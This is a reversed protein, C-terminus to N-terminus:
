MGISPKAMPQLRHRQALQPKEGREGFVRAEATRGSAHGNRLGREAGGDPLHLRQQFKPQEVAGRVADDQAVSAM